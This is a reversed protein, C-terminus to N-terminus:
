FSQRIVVELKINGLRAAIGSFSSWYSGLIKKSKALAYMEIAAQIIGEKTNRNLCGKSLIVKDKLTSHNMFYNKIAQDDSAIYFTTKPCKDVESLMRVEFSELPSNSISKINDTRRIHVGITNEDFKETERKVREEVEPQLYFLESNFKERPYFSSYSRIILFCYRPIKNQAFVSLAENDTESFIEFLHIKKLLKLAQRFIGFRRRLYFFIDLFHSSSNSDKIFSIQKFIHQFNCNLGNNRIWYIRLKDSRGDFLNVASDITRMRNALGGKPYLIIRM